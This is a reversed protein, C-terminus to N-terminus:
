HVYASSNITEYSLARAITLPINPTVEVSMWEEGIALEDSGDRIVIEEAM